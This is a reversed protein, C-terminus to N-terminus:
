FPLPILEEKDPQLTTTDIFATLRGSSSRAFQNFKQLVWNRAAGIGRKTQAQTSMTNRTGFNVMSLIYSKLSDASIEKVMAEIAVDRVITTQAFPSAYM